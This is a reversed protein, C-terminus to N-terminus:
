KEDSISCREQHKGQETSGRREPLLSAMRCGKGSRWSAAEAKQARLTARVSQTQTHATITATCSTSLPAPEQGTRPAQSSTVKCLLPGTCIPSFTHVDLSGRPVHLESAACPAQAQEELGARQPTTPRPSSASPALGLLWSFAAACLRGHPSSLNCLCAVRGKPEESM